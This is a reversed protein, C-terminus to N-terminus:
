KIGGNVGPPQQQIHVTIGPCPPKLVEKHLGGCKKEWGKGTARTEKLWAYLFGEKSYFGHHCPLSCPSSVQSELWLTKELMRRRANSDPVLPLLHTSFLCCERRYIM